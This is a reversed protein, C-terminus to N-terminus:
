IYINYETDFSSDREKNNHIFLTEISSGFTKYNQINLAM